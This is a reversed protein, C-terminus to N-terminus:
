LQSSHFGASCCTLAKKSCSDSLKSTTVVPPPDTSTIALVGVSRLKAEILIFLTCNVRCCTASPSYDDKLMKFKVEESDNFEKLAVKGRSTTTFIFHHQKNIQPIKRFHLGLFEVWDYTPVLVTGDELRVLETINPAASNTIANARDDLCGIISRRLKQKTVGFCWDPSFKTHRALLSSITIKDHCGTLVRWMIYQM